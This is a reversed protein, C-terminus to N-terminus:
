LRNKIYDAFTDVDFTTGRALEVVMDAIVIWHKRTM